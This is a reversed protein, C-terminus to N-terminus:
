NLVVKVPFAFGVYGDANLEASVFYDGPPLQV